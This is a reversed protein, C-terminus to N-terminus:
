SVGGVGPEGWGATFADDEATCWLVGAPLDPKSLGDDGEDAM